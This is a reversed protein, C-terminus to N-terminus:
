TAESLHQRQRSPTALSAKSRSATIGKRMSALRGSAGSQVYDEHLAAEVQAQDLARAETLHRHVLDFLRELAINHTLGIEAHLWDAFAMFGAFASGDGILM